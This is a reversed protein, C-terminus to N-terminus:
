VYYWCCFTEVIRSCLLGKLLTHVFCYDAVINTAVLFRQVLSSAM